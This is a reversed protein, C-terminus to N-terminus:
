HGGSIAIAHASGAHAEAVVRPWGYGSRAISVTEGSGAIAIARGPGYYYGPYGSGSYCYLNGNRHRCDAFVSGASLCGVLVLGVKVLKTMCFRRYFIM